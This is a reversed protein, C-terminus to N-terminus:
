EATWFRAKSGGKAAKIELKAGCKPCFGAFATGAANLYIRMYVHCCKFLVGLYPRKQRNPPM